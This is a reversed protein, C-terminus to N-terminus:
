SAAHEVNPHRIRPESRVNFVLWRENWHLPGNLIGSAEAGFLSLRPGNVDNCIIQISVRLQVSHTQFTATAFRLVSIQTRKLRSVKGRRALSKELLLTKIQQGCHKICKPQGNGKADEMMGIITPAIQAALEGVNSCFAMACAVCHLRFRSLNRRTGSFSRFAFKVASCSHEIMADFHGSPRRMNFMQSFKINIYRTQSCKFTCRTCIRMNVKQSCKLSSRKFAGSEELLLTSRRRVHLHLELIM